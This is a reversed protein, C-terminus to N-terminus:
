KMIGKMLFNTMFNKKIWFYNTKLVMIMKKIFANSEVLKKKHDAISKIQSKENIKLWQKKKKKKELAKPM